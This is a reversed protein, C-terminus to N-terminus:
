MKEMRFHTPVYSFQNKLSSEMKRTTVFGLREYLAKARPNEESVDLVYKNASSANVKKMLADILLTGLGQGRLSPLIALHALVIEEKKPLEIIREVRLGHKIIPVSKFGYFRLINLADTTTFSAAKKADFISGLGVMKGEKYLSYQNDFSFEGGKRVFAYKLFDVASVKHNKFVYEFADPGSSYMLPAAIEVESPHSPKLEIKM